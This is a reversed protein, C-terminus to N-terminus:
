IIIFVKLLNPFKNRFLEQVKKYHKVDAFIMALVNKKALKRMQGKTGTFEDDFDSKYIRTLEELTFNDRFSDIFLNYFEGSISAEELLQKEKKDLSELAKTFMLLNISFKINISEEKIRNIVIMTIFYIISNSLDVEVLRKNAYTLFRRYAKPLRTINSHIRGDTDSTYYIYYSGNKLDILQTFESVYKSFNNHESYRKECLSVAEDFDVKLKSNNFYKGLFRYKGNKIISPLDISSKIKNILKPDTIYDVKLSQNLFINNLKYSYSKEGRKYGKSHLISCKNEKFKTRSERRPLIDSRLFDMHEKHKTHRVILSSTPIQKYISSCTQKKSDEKQHVFAMPSLVLHIIYKLYDPDLNPSHTSVLGEINLGEPILVAFSKM